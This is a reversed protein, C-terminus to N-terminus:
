YLINANSDWNRYGHGDPKHVISKLVPGKDNEECNAFTINVGHEPDYFCGEMAFVKAGWPLPALERIPYVEWTADSHPKDAIRQLHWALNSSNVFNDQNWKFVDESFNGARFQPLWLQRVVVMHAGYDGMTRIFDLLSELRGVGSKTLVLSVRVLLGLSNAEKILQMFDVNLGTIGSHVKAFQSFVSFTVMTLGADAMEKLSHASKGPQLLFGNTHMDVLFEKRSCADILNYIYERSEQTPEAKGTLIAHTAGLRKAFRLGKEVGSPSCHTIKQGDLGATNPTTRSICCKCSGNCSTRDSVQFSISQARLQGTSVINM